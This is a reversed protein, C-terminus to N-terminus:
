CISTYRKFNKNIAIDLAILILMFLVGLEDSFGVLKPALAQIVLFYVFIWYYAKRISLM